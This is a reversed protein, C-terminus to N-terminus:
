SVMYWFLPRHTVRMPEMTVAMAKQTGRGAPFDVGTIEKTLTLYSSVEGEEAPTLSARDTHNWLRWFLFDKLDDAHVLEM